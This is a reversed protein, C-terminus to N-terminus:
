PVATEVSLRRLRRFEYVMLGLAIATAIGDSIPTAAWIGDFGFFHPLVYYLPILLLVQRIMTLMLAISGRGTTQFYNTTIITVGVGPFMLMFICVARETLPALDPTKILFPYLVWHPFLLVILTYGTGLLLVVGLMLAFARAVRAYKKAGINYGVVPQGGQSIGLIVAFILHFMSVCIRMAAIGNNGSWQETEEYHLFQHNILAITLCAVLNMLCPALGTHCIQGARAFDLRIYKLRWRLLSRGTLYYWALWVSSIAQSLVNAIAPGEIGTKLVFLFFWSLVINAIASIILTVMAIHVKGESRLFSNIGFSVQNFFTGFIIIRLFRKALPLTVPTAGFFYLLDEIFILGFVMFLLTVLLFLCLAVGMLREAEDIRNQGLRISLLTNTGIGIMMAASLMILMIPVTLSVAALADEGFMYSIFILDIIGYSMNVLMGTVAPLSFRLLLRGVPQEGMFKAQDERNMAADSKHNDLCM